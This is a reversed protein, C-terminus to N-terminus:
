MEENSAESPDKQTMMEYEKLEPEKGGIVFVNEMATIVMNDDPTKITAISRNKGLRKEYAVLEGHIGTNVGSVVLVSAGEEFPYFDIIKKEKFSYKITGRTSYNKADDPKLLINRGGTCNLQIKGKKVTTKDVVGLLKWDADEKKTELVALRRRGQWHVVRFFKDAEPISVIDQPGVMFRVDRRPIGDVHVQNHNLIFKLEKLNQALGLEDRLLIGLPFGDKLPHAGASGHFTFKNAKRNIKFTSPSAVRKQHKKPGKRGM